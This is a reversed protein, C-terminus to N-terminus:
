TASKNVTIVQSTLKKCGVKWVLIMWSGVNRKDVDNAYKTRTTSASFWFASCVYSFPDPVQATLAKHTEAAFQQLQLLCVLSPKEFREYCDASM